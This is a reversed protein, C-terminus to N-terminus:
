SPRTCPVVSISHFLPNTRGPFAECLYCRLLDQFSLEARQAEHRSRAVFDLSNLKLNPLDTYIM